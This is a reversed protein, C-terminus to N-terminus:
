FFIMFHNQLSGLTTPHLQLYNCHNAMKLIWKTHASVYEVLDKFVNSSSRLFLYDGFKWNTRFHPQCNTELFQCSPIVVASISFHSAYWLRPNATDVFFLKKFFIPNKFMWNCILILIGYFIQIFKFKVRRILLHM